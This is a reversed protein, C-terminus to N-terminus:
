TGVPLILFCLKIDAGNKLSWDLAHAVSTATTGRHVDLLKVGPAIGNHAPLNSAALVQAVKTGHSINRDTAADDDRVNTDLSPSCGANGCVVRKMVKDNLSIPHNIGSDIVAVVVGSGNLITGSSTTLEDPTANITVRAKDVESVVALAGDGIGSIEDHLSLGPLETVPVSATVFSLIEGQRINHAGVNDLRKTLANKNETAVEDSDRQDGDDQSIVFIVDHYTYDDYVNPAGNQPKTNIMSQIKDYFGDDFKYSGDVNGVPGTVNGPLHDDITSRIDDAQSLITTPLVLVAAFAM